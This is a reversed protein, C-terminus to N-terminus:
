GVVAFTLGDGISGSGGDQRFVFSTQFARVDVRTPAVVAQRQYPGSTLLLDGETVFGSPMGGPTFGAGFDIVTVAPAERSELAECRPLHRSTRASLPRRREFLQSLGNPWM